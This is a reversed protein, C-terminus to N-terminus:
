ENLAKDLDRQTHIDTSEDMILISPRPHYPNPYTSLKEKTIAWISGYVAYNPHCTMVEDVGSEMIKKTLAILNPKITPSNAQVAVIVDTPYMQEIAHQYVLINPCDGCLDAGRLIPIAGAEVAMKLIDKSDSSVYVQDFIRRCKEVNWLFM